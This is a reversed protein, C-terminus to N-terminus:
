SSSARDRSRYLEGDHAPLLILSFYIARDDTKENLPVFVEHETTGHEFFLARETRGLRDLIRRVKGYHSGLKIIAAADAARLKTELEGEPLTGPIISFVRDTSVLPLGARAACGAFSTIGPIVRCDHHKALRDHLYIFSGYFLPDGECLVAVDLGASLRESIRAASEGYFHDLANVYEPHQPPLEVTYPYTLALHEASAGVYREATGWANGKKGRKAFFAVVPAAKIIQVAKVTMLDPDGPGVGVGFLTGKGEM